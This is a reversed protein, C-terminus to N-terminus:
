AILVDRQIRVKRSMRLIRIRDKRRSLPATTPSLVSMAVETTEPKSVTCIDSSARKVTGGAKKTTPKATKPKELNTREVAYKNSNMAAKGAARVHKAQQLRDTRRNAARNPVTNESPVANNKISSQESPPLLAICPTVENKERNTRMLASGRLGSAEQDIRRFANQDRASSDKRNSMPPSIGGEDSPAWSPQSAPPPPAREETGCVLNAVQARDKTPSFRNADFSSGVLALESDDSESTHFFRGMEEELNDEVFAFSSESDYDKVSFMGVHYTAGGEEEKSLLAAAPAEFDFGKSFVRLETSITPEAQQPAVVATTAPITEEVVRHRLLIQTTERAVEVQVQEKGIVRTNKYTDKVEKDDAPNRESTAQLCFLIETPDGSADQCSLLAPAQMADQPCSFIAPSMPPKSDDLDYIKMDTAFCFLADLASPKILNTKEKTAPLYCDHGYQISANDMVLHAPEDMLSSEMLSVGTSQSSLISISAHPIDFDILFSFPLDDNIVEHEEQEKSDKPSEANSVGLYEGPPDSQHRKVVKVPAFHADAFRPTPVVLEPIDEELENSFCIMALLHFEDDEEYDEIEQKSDTDLSRGSTCESYSIESSNTEDLDELIYAHRKYSDTSTEALTSLTAATTSHSVLSHKNTEPLDGWTPTSHESEPQTATM